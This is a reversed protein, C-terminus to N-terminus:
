GYIIHLDEKALNWYRPNPHIVSLTGVQNNTKSRM